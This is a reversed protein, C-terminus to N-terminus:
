AKMRKRLATNLIEVMVSFCIAFYIYGRPIHFQLGDAILMVGILLIFNLALMKITPNKEVLTCLHESAFIMLLIAIGIATAMLWFNPTLGIATLVSDLSFLIDFVAIQLVVSLFKAHNKKLTPHSASEFESHIELTGKILLFIGGSLFFISSFSIPISFIELLPKSLHSVWVASALLILRTVLALLLGVRRGSKQQEKPLKSSLISIFVLNDVGLVVELFTLTLLTIFIQWLSFLDM